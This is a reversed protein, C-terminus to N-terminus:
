LLIKLLPPALLATLIGNLILGVTAYAGFKDGVESVRSTGMVHAATGMSLSRAVPSSIRGITLIKLGAMSGALGVVVVIAATLSPIGGLQSSIEVAIPTTVSKPALSAIVADSAGCWKALLVVSIIGTGSGALQSIFVPMFQRKIHPWQVYLPVGLAVIAPKLWFEIMRGGTEYQTYDIGTVKLYCIMLVITVLVPNLVAWGTRAQLCRAGWFVLFTLTILFIENSLFEM